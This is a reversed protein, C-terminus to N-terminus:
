ANRDENISATFTVLSVKQQHARVSSALGPLFISVFLVGMLQLTASDARPGSLKEALFDLGWGTLLRVCKSFHGIRPTPEDSQFHQKSHENSPVNWALKSM